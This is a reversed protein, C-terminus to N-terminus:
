IRDTELIWGDLVKEFTLEREFRKYSDVGLVPVAVTQFLRSAVFTKYCGDVMVRKFLTLCDSQNYNLHVYLARGLDKDFWENGFLYGWWKTNPKITKALDDRHGLTCFETELRPSISEQIRAFNDLEECDGPLLYLTLTKGM